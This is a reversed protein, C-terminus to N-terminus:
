PGLTTTSGGPTPPDGDTPGSGPRPESPATSAPEGSPTPVPADAPGTAIVEAASADAQDPSTGAEPAPAETAATQVASWGGRASVVPGAGPVRGASRSMVQVAIATTIPVTLVIGVSGILTRAVEVAIIEENLPFGLGRIQISFLVLLPLATGLYAFVLTNVTAALHAIGVNMTRGYLARPGITPDVSRLEEVTAAQTMAVDNLVGLGGFIVGALLLGSLDITTGALQGIALVEQSGQAPTFRALVTVAAALGGTILLGALTGAIASGTTRNLGQTLVFSVITVVTGLGIALLLPNWGALLLPILVRIALVLSLALAVLSRVGRWGAVAITIVAFLIALGGILPLRWRDIVSFSTTGDQQSDISVVVEDGVLYDPLQLQGSPGELNAPEREGRRSGELFEITATPAASGTPPQLEVIRAHIRESVLGQAGPPTLDPLLVLIAAVALLGLAFLVIERDSRRRGSGPRPEGTDPQVPTPEVIMPPLSGDAEDPTVNPRKVSRSNQDM